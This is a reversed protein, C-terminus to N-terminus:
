STLRLSKEGRTMGLAALISWQKGSLTSLNLGFGFPTARFREKTERSLITTVPGPGGSLFPADLATYTDTDTTRCMLYGYRIVLGDASLMSANRLATGVTAQWDVLWSWPALEWLAGADLRTGLLKSALQEYHTLKDSVSDGTALHYTFSGKFWIERKRSSLRHVAFGGGPRTGAILDKSVLRYPSMENTGNWTSESFSEEVPFVFGRRTNKGSNRELDRIQQSATTLSKILKTVDSWLPLWGFQANLYDSGIGKPSASKFGRLGITQSGLYPLGGDLLVEGVM